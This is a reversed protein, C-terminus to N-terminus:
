VNGPDTFLGRGSRDLSTIGFLLAKAVQRSLNYPEIYDFTALYSAEM